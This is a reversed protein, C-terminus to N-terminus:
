RPGDAVPESGFNCRDDYDYVERLKDSALRLAEEVVQIESLGIEQDEWADERLRKLLKIGGEMLSRVELVTLAKEDETM